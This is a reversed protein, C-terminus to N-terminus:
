VRGVSAELVTRDARTVVGLKRAAWISLGVFLVSKIVTVLVNWWTGGQPDLVTTIDGLFLALGFALLNNVIHQAIGAELGGTAIVLIGATLGFALRDIFVPLDQVGHALAFLVAPVVVGLARSVWLRTALGGFAQTLYGRFVYEEAIAQFPTLLVIVLLFQITTTTVDNVGGGLDEGEGSTPLLAALVISAVLTVVSVGFSVLLWTWRVKPAVSTVWGPRLGNVVRTVAWVEPIALVLVLHVFLLSAPTTLDTDALATLRDQLQDTPVGTAAYYVAFGLVVVIANVVLFLVAVAFLGLLSWAWMPQRGARFLQQYEVDRVGPKDLVPADPAWPASM